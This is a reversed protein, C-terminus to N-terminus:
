LTGKLDIRLTCIKSPRSNEFLFNTAQANFEKILALNIRTLIKIKCKLKKKMLLERFFCSQSLCFFIVQIFKAKIFFYHLIITQCFKSMEAM